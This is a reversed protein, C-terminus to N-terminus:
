LDLEVVVPRHDSGALTVVSEGVADIGRVLIWDIRLWPGFRGDAPWTFGPGAGVDQHPDSFGARALARYPRSRDNSNLDGGVIAPVGPELADLVADIEQARVSAEFAARQTVSPGCRPCPSILHVPVVQVDTGGVDIQVVATPRSHRSPPPIARVDTIPFRSLVAVGGVTRAPGTWVYPLRGAVQERLARLREPFVEQLLLVDPDQDEVLKVVHSVNPAHVYTNFTAVRVDATAASPTSVFVGGYSWVFALAPVTLLLAARSARRVVAVPVLVVAPLLWWFTTLNVPQTWWTDGFVGWVALALLTATAYAGALRAPWRRGPRGDVPSPRGARATGTPRDFGM